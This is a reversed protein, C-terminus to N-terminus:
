EPGTKCRKISKQRTPRGKISTSSPTESTECLNWNGPTRYKPTKNTKPDKGQTTTKANTITWRYRTAHLKVSNIRFISMTNLALQVSSLSPDINKMSRPMNSFPCPCLGMALPVVAPMAGHVVIFQYTMLGDIDKQISEQIVFCYAVISIRWTTRSTFRSEGLKLPYVVMVVETLSPCLDFTQIRHTLKVQTIHMNRTAGKKTLCHKASKKKKFSSELDATRSSSDHLIWLSDRFEGVMLNFDPGLANAVLTHNKKAGFIVHFEFIPLKYLLRCMM